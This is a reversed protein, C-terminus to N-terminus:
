GISVDPTDLIDRCYFKEFTHEAKWGLLRRAKEACYKEFPLDACIYFIEHSHPMDPAQLGALFAPGLDEWATSFSIPVNEDRNDFKDHPRLRSVLFTMCDLHAHEAFADIIKIGLHKTHAYLHTGPRLPTDANIKYEYRNDGEFGEVRTVPGSNIIRSPRCRTAAQMINYVGAVNIAFAKQPNSRNVTLNIVADCGQMANEIQQYNTIDVQRWEHPQEPAAEWKPWLPDKPKAILEEISVIDTLRLKYHQSLEKYIAAGVPGGAGLILVTGKQIGSM